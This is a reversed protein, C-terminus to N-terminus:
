SRPPPRYWADQGLALLGQKKTGRLHLDVVDTWPQLLDLAEEIHPFYAPLRFGLWRYAWLRQVTLEATELDAMAPDQEIFSLDVPEHKNVARVWAMWTSALGAHQTNLPALGLIHKMELPLELMADLLSAREWMELSVHPVFYGDGAQAHQEYASLLAELKNTGALRSLQELHQVHPAIGFGTGALPEQKARMRERLITHEAPTLGVVVGEQGSQLGYRGARGGIQQILPISLEQVEQGNFKSISTFVIRQIPLNLGMGIADTAVLIEAEGQAFRAAERERVEPTLMGYICAVKRGRALFEDRLALAARRSFVVWADGPQAQELALVPSDALAQAAVKLPHKRDKYRVELPVGLRHALSRIAPEASLAGLVWIEQANVGVVAQTWAWGRDPDHLMQIEDIVAVEVAQDVKLMEITSATLRAGEVERRDEGTLLSCPAKFEENLRLHAELALLRLPGLYVGSSAQALRVFADYTKGSNTPGLVAIIRRPRSAALFSEPYADLQVVQRVAQGLRTRRDLAIAQRTFADLTIDLEDLFVGTCLQSDLQALAEPSTGGQAALTELVEILKALGSALKLKLAPVLNQHKAILQNRQALSLHQIRQKSGLQSEKTYGLLSVTHGRWEGTAPIALYAERNPIVLAPRGFLPTVPSM